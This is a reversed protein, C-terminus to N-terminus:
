LLGLQEPPQNQKLENALGHLHPWSQALANYDLAYAL